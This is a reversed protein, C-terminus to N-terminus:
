WECSDLASNNSNYGGIVYIKEKIAISASCTRTANMNPLNEQKCNRLDFSM